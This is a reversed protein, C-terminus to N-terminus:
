DRLLTHYLQDNGGPTPAPVERNNAKIGGHDEEEQRKKLAEKNRIRDECASLVVDQGTLSMRQSRM